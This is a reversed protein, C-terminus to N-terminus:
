WVRTQRPIHATYRLMAGRLAGASRNCTTHALGNYTNRDNDDHDLDLPQGRFM